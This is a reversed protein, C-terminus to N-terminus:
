PLLRSEKRPHPTCCRCYPSRLGFFASGVDGMFCEHQLGTPVLFGATAAVLFLALGMIVPQELRWALLTWGLAAIAGQGGALGDIGDMFNYANTLGVIWLFTLPIGLWGVEM